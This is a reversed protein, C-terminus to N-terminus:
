CFAVSDLRLKLFHVASVFFQHDGSFYIGGICKFWGWRVNLVYIGRLRGAFLTTM